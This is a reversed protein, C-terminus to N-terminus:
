GLLSVSAEIRLLDRPIRHPYSWRPYGNGHHWVRNLWVSAVCRLRAHGDWLTAVATVPATHGELVAVCQVRWATGTSSPSQKEEDKEAKNARKTKKKLM